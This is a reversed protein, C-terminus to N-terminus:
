NDNNTIIDYNSPDSFLKKLVLNNLAHSGKFSELKGFVFGGSTFMDGLADIIKHRVFEDPWVLRNIAGDGKDNLAIVNTKGAGRAMGRAKLYDWESYKGFTRARAIDSMFKRVSERSGDFLFERSQVGIIKEPYDLTAKISLGRSDPSLRVFGNSKRGSILNYFWLKIRSFIPLQRLIESQRAIVEKKVIIKRVKDGTTKIGSFINCFEKASGDLIPTEPGDIEIVASDVGAILLAAMLHEITKVHAARPDGVTTNRLKTEGVNDFRAPILPSNKIDTRRFFIGPKGSPKVTMSVPAGSHIGVGSIKIEKEFSGM